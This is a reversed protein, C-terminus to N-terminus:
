EGYEQDAEKDKKEESFYYNNDINSTQSANTIKSEDTSKAEDTTKAKDTTNSSDTTNTTNTADATQNDQQLDQTQNNDIQWDIKTIDLKSSNALRNEMEKRVLSSLYKSAINVINPNNKILDITSLSPTYNVASADQISPEIYKSTYIQTGKYMYADVIASSMRLIEEENLWFYCNTSKKSMNLIAKKALVVYNEGNPFCIRIDVTDNSEINTNINIVSYELERLESSVKRDTLMSNIIQTGMPINVLAAKGLGKKTLYLEKPQSAIVIKKELKDKTVFDGAKIDEKVVYVERQNENLKQNAEELLVQYEQRIQGTIMVATFIAAGGIVVTCIIAVIIYQRTSRKLSRKM